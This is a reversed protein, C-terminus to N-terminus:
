GLEGTASTWDYTRRLGDALTGRPQYGLEAEIKKVSLAGKAAASM